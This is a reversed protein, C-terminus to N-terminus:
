FMRGVGDMGGGGGMGEAPPQKEEQLVGSGGSLYPIALPSVFVCGTDLEM